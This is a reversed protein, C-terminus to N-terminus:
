RFLYADALNEAADQGGAILVPGSDLRVATHGRRPDFSASLSQFEGTAPDFIELGPALEFTEAVSGGAILVRGDGLLTLTHEARNPVDGDVETFAGTSPSYIQGLPGGDIAAGLILVDGNELTVLKTQYGYAASMPGVREFSESAPDYIEVESAPVDVLDVIEIGGALLVRGDPLAACDVDIGYRYAPDGALTTPGSDPDVLLPTCDGPYCEDIVLVDNDLPVACHFLVGGAPLEGPSSFSESAPDWVEITLAPATLMSENRTNGGLVVVRGDAVRTASPQSRPSALAAGQEFRETAPDFLEVEAVFAALDLQSPAGLIGGVLLVRGDNLLTAAHSFRPSALSETPELEDVYEYPAEPEEEDTTCGLLACTSVLVAFARM